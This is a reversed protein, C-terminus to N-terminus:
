LLFRETLMHDTLVRIIIIRSTFLTLRHAASSLMDSPRCLQRLCCILDYYRIQRWRVMGLPYYM